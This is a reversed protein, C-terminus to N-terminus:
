GHREGAEDLRTRLRGRIKFLASKVAGPSMDLIDAITEVAADEGYYLTAIMRQRATLCSLLRGWVESALEPNAAVADDRRALRDVAAREAVRSRHHDILLNSMVRRVWAAPADYTSVDDWNRHARLLTEQALDRAVEADGSMSIGLAVLRPYTERFLDEFSQTAVHVDHFVASGCRRNGGM